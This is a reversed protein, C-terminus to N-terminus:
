SIVFYFSVINIIWSIIQVFYFYSFVESVSVPFYIFPKEIIIEFNLFKYHRYGM